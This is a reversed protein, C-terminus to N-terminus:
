GVKFSISGAAAAVVPTGYAEGCNFIRQKTHV